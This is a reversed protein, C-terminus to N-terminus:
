KTLDNFFEVLTSVSHNFDEVFNKNKFNIEALTNLKQKADSIDNDLVDVLAGALGCFTDFPPACIATIADDSLSGLKFIRQDPSTESDFIDGILKKTETHKENFDDLIKNIVEFGKDVESDIKNFTKEIFCDGSELDTPVLIDRSSSDQTTKIYPTLDMESLEELTIFSTPIRTLPCTIDDHMYLKRMESIGNKTLATEVVITKDSGIKYYSKCNSFKPDPVYLNELPIGELSELSVLCPADNVFKISYNPVDCEENTFTKSLSTVEQVSTANSSNEIPGVFVSTNSNSSDIESTDSVVTNVERLEPYSQQRPTQCYLLQSAVDQAREIVHLCGQFFTAANKQLNQVAIGLTYM